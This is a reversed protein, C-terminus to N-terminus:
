QGGMSVAKIQYDALHALFKDVEYEKKLSFLVINTDIPLVKEVFSLNRAVKGLQRARKHDDKLRVINNELAYIGAAALYGIQRMGGGMVKRVRKAQKLLHNSTLLISGVPAGLGKSLCISITDFHQGYEKPNDKTRELANFIRAGDLHMKLVSRKSLLALSAIDELTYCSGGAKNVTNELCLVRSRPFHIDKPNINEFVQTANLRGRQGDLTRVSVMSNSACGGGEDDYAVILSKNTIGLGSLLASFDENDPLLGMVPKDTKVIDAYHIFHADPIHAQQYQKAKCLDVIIINENSRLAELEDPEIMYSTKPM